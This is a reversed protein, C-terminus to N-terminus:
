NNLMEQSEVETITCRWQCEVLSLVCDIETNVEGRRHSRAYFMSYTYDRVKWTFVHLVHEMHRLSQQNQDLM